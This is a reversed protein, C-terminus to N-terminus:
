LEQHQESGGFVLLELRDQDVTPHLRGGLVDGEEELLIAELHSEVGRIEVLLPSQVDLRFKHRLLDLNQYRRDRKAHSDVLRVDFCDDVEVNGARHFAVELFDSSGPAIAALGIAM